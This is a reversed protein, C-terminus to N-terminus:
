SRCMNVGDPGIKEMIADLCAIWDKNEDDEDGEGFDGNEIQNRKTELANYIELWDEKTLRNM